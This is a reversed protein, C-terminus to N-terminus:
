LKQLLNIVDDIDIERETDLIRELFELDKGTIDRFRVSVGKQDIISVTYDYERNVSYDSKM